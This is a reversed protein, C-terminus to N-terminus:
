MQEPFLKVGLGQAVKRLTSDLSALPAGLRLALELYAADYATLGHQRALALTEAFVKRRSAGDNEIQLSEIMDVFPQLSSSVIRKRREGVVMANAVEVAWHDPVIAKSAGALDQQLADCDQRKEDAFLWTMTVSNDLVYTGAM